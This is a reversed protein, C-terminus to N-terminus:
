FGKLIWLEGRPTGATFAIRRGDPHVRVDNGRCCPLVRVPDDEGRVAISWLIRDGNEEPRAFLLRAGDATWAVPPGM